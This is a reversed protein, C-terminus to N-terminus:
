GETQLTEDLPYDPSAEGSENPFAAETNEYPNRIINFAGSPPISQIRNFERKQKNKHIVLDVIAFVVSLSAAMIITNRFEANTKEIGGASRLPWPAYLRGEASFDMGNANNWRYMDYFFNVFLMSFPFSGFTTIDFRRLDKGWGPFGTTDFVVLPESSDSQAAAQTLPAFFLLFLIVTFIFKKKM